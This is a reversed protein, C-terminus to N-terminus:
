SLSGRKPTMASFSEPVTDVNFRVLESDELSESRGSQYIPDLGLMNRLADGFYAIELSDDRRAAMLDSRSPEYTVSSM